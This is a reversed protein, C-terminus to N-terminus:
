PNAYEKRMTVDAQLTADRFFQTASILNGAAPVQVTVTVHELADASDFSNGSISVVSAPEYAIGREDLLRQVRSIVQADTGGKPAGARAGEYAAITLTEKLFMASCLDITAITITLVIPLCIVLEVTAVARRNNKSRLPSRYM